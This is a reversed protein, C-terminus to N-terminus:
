PRLEVIKAERAAAGLSGLLVDAACGAAAIFYVSRGDLLQARHSFGKKAHRQDDRQLIAAAVMESILADGDLQLTMGHSQIPPLTAAYADLAVQAAHSSLVHAGGGGDNRVASTRRPLEADFGNVHVVAVFAFTEQSLKPSYDIDRLEVPGRTQNPLKM